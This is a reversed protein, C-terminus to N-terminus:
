SSPPRHASPNPLSGPSSRLGCSQLNSRLCGPSSDPSCDPSYRPLCNVRYSQPSDPLNRVRNSPSNDPPSQGWVPRGRLTLRVAESETSVEAVTLPM